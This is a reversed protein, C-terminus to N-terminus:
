YRKKGYEVVYTGDTNAGRIVGDAYGPKGTPRKIKIHQGVRFGGAATATAPSSFQARRASAAGPKSAFRNGPSVGPRGAAPAGVSRRDSSLQPRGSSLTPPRRMPKSGFDVDVLEGGSPGQPM